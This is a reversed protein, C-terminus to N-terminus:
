SNILPEKSPQTEVVGFEYERQDIIRVPNTEDTVLADVAEVSGSIIEFGARQLHIALMSEAEVAHCQFIAIFRNPNASDQLAVRQVIDVEAEGEQGIVPTM